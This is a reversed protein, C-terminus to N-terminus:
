LSFQESDSLRFRQSGERKGRGVLDVVGVVVWIGGTISKYTGDSMYYRFLRVPYFPLVMMGLGVLIMLWSLVASYGGKRM